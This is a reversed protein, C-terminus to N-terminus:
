GKYLLNSSSGGSSPESIGHLYWKFKVDDGSRQLGAKFAVRKLDQDGSQYFQESIIECSAGSEFLELLIYQCFM